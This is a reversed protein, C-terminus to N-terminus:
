PRRSPVERASIPAGGRKWGERLLWTTPRRVFMPDYTERIPWMCPRDGMEEWDPFSIASSFPDVLWTSAVGERDEGHKRWNNLVYSLAHRAQTPSRIVTVHYRDAFVRGRRRLAGIGLATNIHRAASITFSQMGRALAGKHEAEVIMHVHTRQLSIQVIRFRERLAATITAHRLAHYLKRKRLSGVAPAVRMVVHLAHYPKFDPRGEHSEGARTGNPKRGAGRRKGGCRFLDQQVHRKRARKSKASAM